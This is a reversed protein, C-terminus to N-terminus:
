PYATHQLTNCHTATHQLTKCHTTTHKLTSCHIETYQLTNCRIATHQLTNCHTAIYQLINTAQHRSLQLWSKRMLICYTAAYYLTKNTFLKQFLVLKCGKTYSDNYCVCVIHKGGNTKISTKKFFPSVQMRQTPFMSFLISLCSSV